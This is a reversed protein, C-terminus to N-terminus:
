TVDEFRVAHTTASEKRKEGPTSAVRSASTQNRYLKTVSGRFDSPHCYSPRGAGDACRISPDYDVYNVVALDLRGDRDYDLFCASTGWLLHDLGAATTADTFTGDGNNLFLRLGHWQTVVVDPRGDNNVDGV